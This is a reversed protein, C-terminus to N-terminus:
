PSQPPATVLAALTVWIQQVPPAVQAPATEQALADHPRAQLPKEEHLPPGEQLAADHENSAEAHGQALAGRPAASPQRAM